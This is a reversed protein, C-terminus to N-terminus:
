PRSRITRRDSAGAPLSVYALHIAEHLGALVIARELVARQEPGACRGLKGVAGQRHMRGALWGLHHAVSALEGAPVEAPDLKDEQPSLRRVLMALRAGRPHHLTTTGLMRPPALAARDIGRVV